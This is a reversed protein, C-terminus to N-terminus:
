SVEQGCHSCFHDADQLAAGCGSCVRVGLSMERIRNVQEEIAADVEADRQDLADVAAAAEALLTSRAAKYDGENIKALQFDFDLERLALLLNLKRRTPSIGDPSSAGLVGAPLRVFPEGLVFVSVLLMALGVFIAGTNM